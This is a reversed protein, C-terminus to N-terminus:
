RLVVTTLGAKRATSIMHETGAGGPFAVVIDPQFAHLMFANRITGAARGFRHWNAPCPQRPIGRFAAWADALTDAGSAAGHVVLKMPRTALLSDMTKYLTATDAYSRGGTVLVVQPWANPANL